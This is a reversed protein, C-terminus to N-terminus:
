LQRGGTRVSGDRGSHSALIQDGSSGTSKATAACLILYEDSIRNRKEGTPANGANRHVSNTRPRSLILERLKWSAQFVQESYPM